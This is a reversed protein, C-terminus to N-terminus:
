EVGVSRGLRKLVFAKEASTLQKAPDLYAQESLELCREYVRRAEGQQKMQWLLDAYRMHDQLGYPNRELVQSWLSKALSLRTPQNFMRAIHQQMQARTRLLGLDGLDFSIAKDLVAEAQIAVQQASTMNRARVLFHMQELMLTVQWRYMTPDNPLVTEARALLDKASLPDGKRLKEAAAIMISQHQTMPIAYSIVLWVALGLPLVAAILCKWWTVKRQSASDNPDSLNTADMAMGAAMAVILMVIPAVGVQFFSMEIQNHILLIASAAAAGVCMTSRSFWDPRSCTATVYLFGIISFSWVLLGEMTLMAPYEVAFQPLFVLVSLLIAWRAQHDAIPDRVTLLNEEKKEKKDAESDDPATSAAYVAVILWWLLLLCWALGGLGITVIYDIFVNHTSIVEEPNLPPKQRTYHSKFQMPGVGLLKQQTPLDQMINLAGQWYHYRFLISREGEVTSPPGAAGRGVVAGIAFVVGLIAVTPGLWQWKAKRRAILIAIFVVIGAALGAVAGKSHTLYLAVTAAVTVVALLAANNRGNRRWVGFTSIALALALAAILSGFVNSLGFAGTVDPFELRRRYLLHQPSGSEWGRARLFEAEHQNFHEVTAPHHVFVYLLADAALPIVIGLMAAFMFRRSWDHQALHYGAYALCMAAVWGGGTHMDKIHQPMHYLCVGIGAAGLIAGVVSLRGGVRVHVALAFACVAVSIVHVWAAGTPGLTTVPASVQESRPDVDWSIQPLIPLVCQLLAIALVAITAFALSRPVAHPLAKVDAVSNDAATRLRAM